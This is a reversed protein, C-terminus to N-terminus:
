EKESKPVGGLSGCGRQPKGYEIRPRGGFSGCEAESDTHEDHERKPKLDEAVPSEADAAAEGLESDPKRREFCHEDCKKLVTTNRVIDYLFTGANTKIAVTNDGIFFVTQARFYNSNAAPNEAFANQVAFFERVSRGGRDFVACGAPQFRGGRRVIGFGIDPMFVFHNSFCCKGPRIVSASRLEMTSLSGDSGFFSISFGNQVAMTRGSEIRAFAEQPAPPAKPPEPASATLLTLVAVIFIYLASRM